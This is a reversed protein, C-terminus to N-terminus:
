QGTIRPWFVKLRSKAWPLLRSLWSSAALSIVQDLPLLIFDSATAAAKLILSWAANSVRTSAVGEPSSPQTPLTSITTTM